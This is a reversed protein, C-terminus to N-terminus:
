PSQASAQGTPAMSITIALGLTPASMGTRERSCSVFMGFRKMAPSSPPSANILFATLWPRSHTSTM